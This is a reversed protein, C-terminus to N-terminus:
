TKYLVHGLIVAVILLFILRFIKKNAEHYLYDTGVTPSFLVLKHLYLDTKDYFHHAFILKDQVKPLILHVNKIIIIIKM